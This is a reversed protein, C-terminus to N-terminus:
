QTRVGVKKAMDVYFAAEDALKRALVEPTDNVPELRLKVMAAKIEPQQLAQLGAARLKDVAAKPTGSRANLSFSLGRIQPFGLETFTPVDLFPPRRQDGSAALVRIAPVISSESLLGVQVEGSLMAQVYAAAGAYPIYTVSVGLSRMIAETQLRSNGTASGYNMKGPNAKANAVLEAVSKWAMKEPTALVNRGEGIVLLFVLDKIPDFRLDQATVPLAALASVNTIVITYGDAPVQRAVYEYGILQDAGTKNEVIVAQGLAKSLEPGITRSAVDLLAGPTSPVIFRVPRSPFDQAQTAGAFFMLAASFAAGLLWNGEVIEGRM